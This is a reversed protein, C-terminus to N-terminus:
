AACPNTQRLRDRDRQIGHAAVLRGAHDNFADVDRPFAMGINMEQQETVLAQQRWDQLPKGFQRVADLNLWAGCTM